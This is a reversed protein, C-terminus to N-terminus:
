TLKFIQIYIIIIFLRGAISLGPSSDWRLRFRRKKWLFIKLNKLIIIINYRYSLEHPKRLPLTAQNNNWRELIGFMRQFAVAM